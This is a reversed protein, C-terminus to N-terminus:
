DIWEIMDALGSLLLIKRVREGANAILIKGGFCSVKKYRGVIMGIGSSDMFQTHEFDFVIHEISEDLLYKDVYQRVYAAQHHDLEKPVKVVLYNDVIQFREELVREEVKKGGRKSKKQLLFSSM